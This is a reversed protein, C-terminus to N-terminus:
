IKFDKFVSRLLNCPTKLVRLSELVIHNQALLKILWTLAVITTDHDAVLMTLINDKLQKDIFKNEDEERDKNHKM